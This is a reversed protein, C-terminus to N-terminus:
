VLVTMLDLTLGGKFKNAIRQQLTAAKDQVSWQGQGGHASDLKVVGNAGTEAELVVLSKQESPRM